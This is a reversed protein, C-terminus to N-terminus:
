EYRNLHAWHKKAGKEWVVYEENGGYRSKCNALFGKVYAIMDVMFYIKSAIGTKPKKGDGWAVFVILTKKQHEYILKVDEETLKLYDVSDLIVAVYGRQVANLIDKLDADLGLLVDDRTENRKWANQLSKSAGQEKSVYLVKGFLSMYNALQVCFETKGNKGEGYVLMSSKREPLGFSKEWVGVFDVEEYTRKLFQKANIKKM